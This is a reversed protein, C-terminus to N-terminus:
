VGPLGAVFQDRNNTRDADTGKGSWQGDAQYYIFNSEQACTGLLLRQAKQTDLFPSDHLVCFILNGYFPVDVITAPVETM